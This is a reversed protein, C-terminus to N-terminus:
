HLFSRNWVLRSLFDFWIAAAVFGAFWRMIREFRPDLEWYPGRSRARLKHPGRKLAFWSFFLAFWVDAVYGM